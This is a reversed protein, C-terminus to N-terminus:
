RRRREHLARKIFVIQKKVKSIQGRYQARLKKANQLKEVESAPLKGLYDFKVKSGERHAVYYFFGGKIKKAVLSGLPLGALERRCRELIRESNALEESLVGKIPDM